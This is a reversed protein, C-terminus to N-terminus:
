AVKSFANDVVKDVHLWVREGIARLNAAEQTLGVSEVIDAKKNFKVQWERARRYTRAQVQFYESLTM